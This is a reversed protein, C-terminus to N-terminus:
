GMEGAWVIRESGGDVTDSWGRTGNRTGSSTGAVCALIETRSSV